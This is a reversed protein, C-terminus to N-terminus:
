FQAKFGAYFTRGRVDYIAANGTGRDTIGGTGTGALGLPPHTDLLNDVGVYFNFDRGIGGGNSLKL